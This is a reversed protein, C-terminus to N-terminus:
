SAAKYQKEQVALQRQNTRNLAELNANIAMFGTALTVEETRTQNSAQAQQAPPLTTAPTANALQPQFGGTPGTPTSVGPIKGAIGSLKAGYNPDTAYGTKAQASIAEEVTGAQLVDKYRKNEGLFKVYDAASEQMSGYKRFNQNMTVMKGNVFEQTAVGGSGQEGPRAKIGFYNQSGATSKGYGTELASQATGLKAIVEPNKVGQKKAEALLNNYMQDLFEKQTGTAPKAPAAAGPPPTVPPTAPSTPSAAPKAPAAAPIPGGFKENIFGTVRKISGAFADVAPVVNKVLNFSLEQLDKSAGAVKSQADAFSGTAGQRNRIESQVQEAAAEASMGTAAQIEMQRKGMQALDFLQAGAGGAMDGSFKIIGAFSEAGTLASKNMDALAATASTGEKIAAINRTMAGGMVMDLEVAEKTTSIGALSARAIDAAPGTLGNVFLEMQAAQKEQGNNQMEFIMARFKANTLNKQQEEEQQKRTAGTIRAIKDVELIYDQTSNKLQEFTKSQTLGLRSFTSIYRGASEGVGDFSMGLKVFEAGIDGRTLAGAIKSFQEAGESVSGGLATLGVTSQNVVKTFTPLSVLGMAKFQRQVGDIGDAALAGSEGLANYNKALDDLQNMVFKAAEGVGQAFEKAAGGIVPIAGVIGGLAKTAMDIAGNLSSFASGGKMVQGAAGAMASGVSSVSKSFKTLENDAVATDTGLGQMSRTLEAMARQLEEENELAM